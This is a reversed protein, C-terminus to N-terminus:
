GGYASAAADELQQATGAPDSPDNYFDIMIQWFGQGPTGGFASPALDSLDFVFAEAGTLQEAIAQSTEDPYLSSDSNINPSTFGGLEIWINAAEPSALYRMLAMTGEDETFAIAVNGGGMVSPPSDEISPFAYFLADTGVVAETDAAINGAVFDGEYVTGAQPPDGFVATVSEPFTRQAGGSLVLQDNGWLEGLITLSDVVTPDTWPIEHDALQNYMDEGAVRLYVNEFWDTLPWGVDAGVALGPTGSDSVLQLTSVFDDWTEPASAGATDYVTANYWVTSKNAAKFWVGYPTGDVTGLDQWSQSYNEQVSALVDEPLEILAGDAAFQDMLGPQPILAVDPPDGGEVRTGLVTAVDNGASTYQVTAGTAEEFGALVEEFNAQEAGSWDSVVDLTTGSLDPWDGSAGTEEGATDEGTPEEGDGGGGCAALLAVSALAAVGSALVRRRSRGAAQTVNM